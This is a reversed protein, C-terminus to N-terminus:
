LQFTRFLSSVFQRVFGWPRFRGYGYLTNNGLSFIVASQSGRLHTDLSIVRHGSFETPLSVPGPQLYGVARLGM